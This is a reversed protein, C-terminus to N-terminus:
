KCKGIEVCLSVVYSAGVVKYRVFNPSQRANGAQDYAKTYYYGVPLNQPKIKEFTAVCATAGNCPRVGGSVSFLPNTLDALAWPGTLTPSYYLEVRDLGKNDDARSKISNPNASGELSQMTPPTTEPTRITAQIVSPAPESVSPLQVQETLKRPTEITKGTPAQIKSVAYMVISVILIIAIIAFVLPWHQYHHKGEKKMKKSYM